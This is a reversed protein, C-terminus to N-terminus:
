GLRLDIRCRVGDDSLSYDTRAGLAYSLANEILERGFGRRTRNEVPVDVGTETWTLILRRAREGDPVVTWAVALEGKEGELAGYKVANTTLEHIALAFNQVQQATLHVSPGGLTVRPPRIDAHAALEARVLAGLEVTDSGFRSLLGQARGLAQLRTEFSAVSGGSRLTRSAVATIVGLLNRSRHQLEAVLVELRTATAKEETVDTAIGAVRQVQGAEDRLPFDTNQIWRIEGDRPRVIRFEHRVSEGSRVREIFSLTRERDEPHILNRWSSFTDDKTASELPEGYIREYAPSLFELQLTEADRIWLVDSSADAFKRFRDETERLQEEKQRRETVDQGIKLFGELKGAEDHIATVSGEIFVLAGDKRAHWRVNPAWGDRRATEVEKEPQGAERDERTFLVAGPQGKIEDASWGFVSEAGPLWDTIRDEADSLFIAYDRATQVILRFREEAGSMERMKLLRDIVPGLIIAYTRLFETDEEGFKRPETADVQLLGYARRGPLFVPVNALAVIGAQKMFDPIDFREEERVDQMIIPRGAEIAFTESSREGMPIHVQGVVASPWGVGARVFLRKTAHQIELVKARHTGLARGVLSCARTLVEDLDESELAFEGFQALARQREVMRELESM